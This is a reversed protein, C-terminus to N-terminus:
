LKSLDNENKIQIVSRSNEDKKVLINGDRVWTLSYGKERAFKRTANLLDLVSPILHEHATVRGDPLSDSIIKASIGPGSDDESSLSRFGGLWSVKDQRRLFKIVIPKSTGKKRSPLRHAVSIDRSSLSSGIAKSISNFVENVSENKTEAVGTVVVNDRRSYSQLNSLENKLKDNECKLLEIEKKMEKNEEKFSLLEKKFADFEDSM